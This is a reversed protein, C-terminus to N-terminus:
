SQITNSFLVFSLALHFIDFPVSCVYTALAQYVNSFIVPVLSTYNTESKSAIWIGLLASM